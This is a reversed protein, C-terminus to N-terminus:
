GASGVAAVASTLANALYQPDIHGHHDFTFRVSTQAVVPDVGLALLVHSPEDSGAACASGSSTVVGRRELELLVAEGSTGAFTFSATGPLRHVPDGTLRAQPLRVLAAAVFEDRLAAVRAASAEREAEALELATAIAVAGAVNETGSRRGREQGGGHLLPEVPVRGRIAAVGTGKPAGLKHGAIVLADAGTGALPLWGAAQVADLHLPVGATRTAAALAGADQVTGIENNAYGISVVATDDRLLATLEAPDVRGTEDVPVLDVDFGHVRRLYRASELISEHEIPTTIVHRAGRASAAAIAIGKLALNNGETGGSTFTIDGARMGLVAAVRRRADDLARAAADGLEHHSSPNGFVSTLFPAMAELVERRVPTTAANDLYLGSM